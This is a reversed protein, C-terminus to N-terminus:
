KKRKYQKKVFLISLLGLIFLVLEFGPIGEAPREVIKITASEYVTHKGDKVVLEVIYIGTSSYTHVPNEQTSNSQDGFKWFYVLDDGDPDSSDSVFNIKENVYATSPVDIIILPPYNIGEGINFTVFDNDTAGHDDIVTLTVTYEDNEKSFVHIPSISLIESTDDGFNWRYFIIEGDEDYSEFADFKVINNDIYEVNIVAVPKKNDGPRTRVTFFWIDSQNYLKSNSINVYWACVSDFYTNFSCSAVEGSVVNRSSGKLVFGEDNSSLNVYFSVDLLENQPDNVKVSLTVQLDQNVSDAKPSIPTTPKNPPKFFFGLPYRDIVGNRSYVIDGVGDKPYNDIENYDDWYNGKSNKYWINNKSKEDANQYNNIFYNKTFINNRSLCNTLVGKSSSNYLYNNFIISNSGFINIGTQSRDFVNYSVNCDDSDLYIATGSNKYFSNNRIKINHSNQLNLGNIQNQNIDNRYFDINNCGTIYFGNKCNSINNEYLNANESDKITIGSNCNSISNSVVDTTKSYDIYIGTIMNEITLNKILHNDSGDIYIGWGNVCNTLNCKQIIANDGIIHILSGQKLPPPLYMLTDQTNHVDFGTIEVNDATIEITHRHTNGYYIISNGGEISGILEIEKNIVLSENYNGGFVYITDGPNAVNIAYQISAYPYEASGDRRGHPKSDVFIENERAKVDFSFLSLSVVIIMLFLCLLQKIPKRKM